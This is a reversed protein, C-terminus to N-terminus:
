DLWEYECVCEHICVPLRWRVVSVQVCSCAPAITEFRAEEAGARKARPMRQKCAM